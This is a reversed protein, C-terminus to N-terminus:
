ATSPAPFDEGERPKEKLGDMWAKYRAPMEKRRWQLFAWEQADRHRSSPAAPIAIVGYTIATRKRSVAAVEGKSVILTVGVNAEVIPVGNERARALVARDQDRSRSGYSPILLYQAGDLVPIRALDPNWRDNCILFGCRGFPTDFARSTQGIRNWWWAPHSGEAMQMKHYKGRLRGNHDIFAACNFVENGIREALGFAVCMGLERALHRFRRMVTGSISVAAERMRKEPESGDILSTVVYGDLSGEPAVALQAGGAAAERFLRELRDANATVDFKRPVFSLAAVRIERFM